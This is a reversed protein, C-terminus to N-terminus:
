RSEIMNDINMTAYKEIVRFEENLTEQRYQLRVPPVNTERIDSLGEGLYHKKLAMEWGSQLVSNRAIECQDVSSFKWVQTAVSYEEVLADKTYHLMLPDDTSLSVNMGQRFYKPFPNKNFDLFLKNNSLPSMAIGIQSLYYLYQSCANKRLMLGHNIHQAVLYCAHTNGIDGAEGCHPRFSFISMGRERRLQNLVAINAYMYYMYYSYNPNHNDKWEDPSPIKAHPTLHIGEPRSEDDVSDFGVITNLFIHLAPNSEPNITVEFLPTFINSLMEQFNNMQGSKSYIHFLRPVQILWRVNKHALRNDFFWQALTAWETPKRGYISIRWEVLQYKSAELDEFLEQTIEALYRGQILNDTKLFIERLRSQGAPNYKLNFRDFRHFTDNAHMDLTDISLDYATLGLSKFVEGLTLYRGDRFAVVEEPFSKLKKKIFRLLHKQNMCASHHVHTDVKRVNYFDRHPVAKQSTNEIDGNLLGHLHFKANLIELRNYTFSAVGGTFAAKKLFWLDHVFEKFSPVPFCSQDASSFFARQDADESDDHSISTVPSLSMAQLSDSTQRIPSRIVSQAFPDDDGVRWVQMVGKVMKFSYANTAPPIPRTFVDYEPDIRRRFKPKPSPPSQESGTFCETAGNESRNNCPSAVKTDVTTYHSCLQWKKRLQLCKKIIRCATSEEETVAEACESIHLRRFNESKYYPEPISNFLDATEVDHEEEEGANKFSRPGDGAKSMERNKRRITDNDEHLPLKLNKKKEQFSHKRVLAGFSGQDRSGSWEVSRSPSGSSPNEAHCLDNGNATGSFDIPVPMTKRDKITAQISRLISAKRYEEARVNQGFEEDVVNVLLSSESGRMLSNEDHLYDDDVDIDVDVDDVDGHSHSRHRPSGIRRLDEESM